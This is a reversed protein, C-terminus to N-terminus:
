IIISLGDYGVEVGDPIIASIKAFDMQTSLHCLITRKPRLKAVWELVLDLHAHTAHPQERLCDVFWVDLGALKEAMDDSLVNVDTSYAVSNFRYGTSLGSGHTQNFPVINIPGIDFQGSIEHLTLEPRWGDTNKTNKINKSGTFIYGFRQELEACHKPSAYADLARGLHFNVSRLDDIGHVHDAHTHTYLVADIHHKQARLLQQRLDPPTDVLLTTEAQEVLLSARTRRNKPNQPDCAGWGDPGIAPVGTSSGSGLLTVRM